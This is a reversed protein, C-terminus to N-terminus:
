KRMTKVETIVSAEPINYEAKCYGRAKEYRAGINYIDRFYDEMM